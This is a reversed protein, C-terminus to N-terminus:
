KPKKPPQMLGPPPPEKAPKPPPSPAATLVGRGDRSIGDIVSPYYGDGLTMSLHRVGGKPTKFTVSVKRPGRDAQMAAFVADAEILETKLEAAFRESTFVKAKGEAATRPDSAFELLYERVRVKGDTFRESGAQYWVNKRVEVAAGLNLAWRPKKEPDKEYNTIAVTVLQGDYEVLPGYVALPAKRATTNRGMGGIETGSHTLTAEAPKTISDRAFETWETFAGRLSRPYYGYYWATDYFTDPLRPPDKPAYRLLWRAPIPAAREKPGDPTLYVADLAAALCVVALMVTDM